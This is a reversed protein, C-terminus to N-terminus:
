KEDDKNSYEQLKDSAWYAGVILTSFFALVLVVKVAFYEM